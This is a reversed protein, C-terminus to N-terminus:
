GNAAEDVPECHGDENGHACCEDCAYAPTFETEYSGFCAAPEGCNACVKPGARNIASAIAVAEERGQDDGNCECVLEGAADWVTFGSLTADDHVLAPGHRVVWPLPRDVM